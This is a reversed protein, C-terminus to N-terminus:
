DLVGGASRTRDVLDAFRTRLVEVGPYKGAVADFDKMIADMKKKAGVRVVRYDSSSGYGETGARTELASPGTPLLDSSGLASTAVEQPAQQLQEAPLALEQHQQGAIIAALGM